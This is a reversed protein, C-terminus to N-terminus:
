YRKFPSYLKLGIEAGRTWIVKGEAYVNEHDIFLGLRNRGTLDGNPIDIGIDPFKLRFGSGSIDVISCRRRTAKDGCSIEGTLHIPIRPSLRRDHRSVCSLNDVWNRCNLHYMGRM